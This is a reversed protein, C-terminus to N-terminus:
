TSSSVRDVSVVATAPGPAVMCASTDLAEGAVLLLVVHVVARFLLHPWRMQLFPLASLRGSPFAAISLVLSDGEVAGLGVVVFFAVRLLIFFRLSGATM